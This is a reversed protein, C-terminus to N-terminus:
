KGRFAQRPRNTFHRGFALFLARIEVSLKPVIPDFLVPEVVLAFKRLAGFLFFAFSRHFGQLFFPNIVPRPILRIFFSSFSVVVLPVFGM